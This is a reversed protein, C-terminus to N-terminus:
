KCSKNSTQNSSYNSFFSKSKIQIWPSLV